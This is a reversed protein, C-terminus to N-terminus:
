DPRPVHAVRQSTQGLASEMAKVTQRVSLTSNDIVQLSPDMQWPGMREYVIKLFEPGLRSRAPRRGDRKIVVGLSPFLVVLRYSMGDLERQWGPYNTESSDPFIADDIVCKFGAEVFRRALLAISGRALKYQRGQEAEWGDRPDAYGSKIMGRVADLSIHACKYLQARAWEDAASTKGAGAPGSILLVDPTDPM